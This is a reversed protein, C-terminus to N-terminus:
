PGCRFTGGIAGRSGRIMFGGRGGQLRGAMDGSEGLSERLAGVRERLGQMREMMQGRMGMQGKLLELQEETLEGSAIAGDLVDQMAARAEIQAKMAEAQEETLDGAAVAEDIGQVKAQEFADGLVSEEIGLIAAVRAMMTTREVPATTEVVETAEEADQALALGAALGAVLLVATAITLMKKRNKM